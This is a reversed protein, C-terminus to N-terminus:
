GGDGGPMGAAVVPRAGVSVVKNRMTGSRGHAATLGISLAHPVDAPSLISVTGEFTIAFANLPLKWRMTSRITKRPWDDFTLIVAQEGCLVGHLSSGVETPPMLMYKQATAIHFQRIKNHDVIGM